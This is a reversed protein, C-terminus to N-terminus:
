IAGLVKQISHARMEKELMTLIQEDPQAHRKYVLAVRLTATPTFKEPAVEIPQPLSTQDSPKLLRNIVDALSKLHADLPTTLADLWHVPSIYYELAKAPLVNEVRFPVVTIGKEFARQVERKVQPSSNAHSSFVVVMVHSEATGDIIAEGWEKGPVIDRPAIWCHIDRAELTTCVADAIPKDKLSYSIFVDHAM